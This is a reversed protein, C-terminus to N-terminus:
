NCPFDDRFYIRENEAEAEEVQEEFECDDCLGRGNIADWPVNRKCRICRCETNTDSM